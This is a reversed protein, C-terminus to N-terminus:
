GRVYEVFDDLGDRLHDRPVPITDAELRVQEPRRREADVVDLAEPAVGRRRPFLLARLGRDVTGRLPALRGEGLPAARHGPAARGCASPTIMATHVVLTRLFISPTRLTRRM